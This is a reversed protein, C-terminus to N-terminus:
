TTSLMSPISSASIYASNTNIESLTILPATFTSTCSIKIRYYGDTGKSGSGLPDGVASNSKGAYGGFGYGDYGSKVPNSIGGATSFDGDYGDAGRLGTPLPQSSYVVGKSRANPAQTPSPNWADGIRNGVNGGSGGGIQIFPYSGINILVTDGGLGPTPANGTGGDSTMQGGAGGLITKSNLTVLSNPSITTTGFLFAGGGGGGSPQCQNGCGAGGGSGALIEVYIDTYEPPTRYNDPLPTGSSSFEIPPPVGTRISVNNSVRDGGNNIARISATYPTDAGLSSFTASTSTSSSPIVSVGNLLYIYSTVNTDLSWNIVFSNYTVDSSTITPVSPITRLTTVSLANSALPGDPRVATVVVTYPTNPTLGTFEATTPTQSSATVTNGNLTYTYSTATADLPWSVLIRTSSISPATIVPSAQGASFIILYYGDSGASGNGRLDGVPSNQMGAYGGAYAQNGALASPGVGSEDSVEGQNGQAANFGPPLTPPIVISGGSSGNSVVPPTPNWYHDGYPLAVNGGRGAQIPITYSGFTFTVSDGTGGPAPPNSLVGDLTGRGAAGGRIV